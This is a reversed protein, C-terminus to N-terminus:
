ESSYRFARKKYKDLNSTKINQDIFRFEGSFVQPIMNKKGLIDLKIAEAMAVGNDDNMRMITFDLESKNLAKIEPSGGGWGNILIKGLLNKEKLAESVGLAVDTTCAYIFKIKDNRKLLDFTALKAKEKNTNTYYQSDLILNSNKSIYDIFKDGRMHSIYGKTGYFVAYSGEGSTRSIYEDAIMKAGIFHDFGVYLFIQKKNWKKLPTTINQLIIKTNYMKLREIFKSHKNVDLTFVLYDVEKKLAKLLQNSQLKTEVGPKSFYSKIEYSINLENMRKEFSKKSRIWYDSLQNSPYVLVIKIKKKNTKELKKAKNHIINEFNKSIKYENKNLNLYEINTYYKLEQALVEISFIILFFFFIKNINM